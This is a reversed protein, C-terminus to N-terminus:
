ANSVPLRLITLSGMATESVHKVNTYCRFQDYLICCLFVYRHAPQQVLADVKLSMADLKANMVEMIRAEQQQLLRQVLKQTQEGQLGPCLGKQCQLCLADLM